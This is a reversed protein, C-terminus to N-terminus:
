RSFEEIQRLTFTRMDTGDRFARHWDVIRRLCEDLGWRPRWGLRNTAKAIDLKLFRAEHPHEGGDLTWSAGFGWQETMREVIWRVPRADGADPGFNWAEAFDAGRELLRQALLLYGGLPELVHQWPRTAHPNRIRVPLGADIARLIDPILRDRSWDGGGVVNGARASAIGVRHRANDTPRFFSNRFSATVLEACGKSSSYPDFGGVADDEAYGRDLERNEYCKDSTVVVVSRVSPIQRVEDLLHATGMVNTSYTGIPDEYSERVIPQAALHFVVEPAASRVARRLADRDRVDGITSCMGEAVRGLEFLSPQTCPALAYGHVKAGLRQLWLGLWSGKFGTHGTLFVSRGSWFENMVVEELAGQWDAM